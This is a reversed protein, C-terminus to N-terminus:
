YSHARTALQSEAKNIDIADSLIHAAELLFIDKADKRGKESKLSKALSRENPQLGDDGATDIDESVLATVAQETSTRSTLLAEQAVRDRRRDAENL